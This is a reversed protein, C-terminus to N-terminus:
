AESAVLNKLTNFVGTEQIRILNELVAMEFGAFSLLDMDWLETDSLVTNVLNAADNKNWLKYFYEAYDDNILYPQNEFEGYYKGDKVQTAKMFYLYSAFAFSFSDSIAGDLEYQKNLIPVVRGKMKLTYNLTINLWAHNIFPNRFRDLVHTGFKFAEDKKVDYPIANAIDNMVLESIFGELIKDNMAHKVFKSGSLFAVSSALTHTANLLRLKLEKFLTIDQAIIIGENVSAFSLLGRVEPKGEIAWLNFVEAVLMLDDKLGMEKEINEKVAADFGPVIRDVLSNCFHNCNELWDIFRADLGNLHALNLVISELKNGNNEILETPVIVMGSQVSGDFAKYREYLFRLLKGPYSVPPNLHINENVMVIGMETTNSIVLQLMPNHACNLIDLWDNQASLVRSISSCVINEEIKQGNQIGRVCINYLGDQKEFAATEGNSTSKVVVIRGNFVGMRNAKDIYYDPLGRLLVGTGFQLVREPLEFLKDDPIVFQEEPINKLQFKSLVM